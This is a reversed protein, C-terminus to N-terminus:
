LEDTEKKMICQLNQKQQNVFDNIQQMKMEAVEKTYFGCKSKGEKRIVLATKIANERMMYFFRELVGVIFEGKVEKGLLYLYYLPPEENLMLTEDFIDKITDSTDTKM